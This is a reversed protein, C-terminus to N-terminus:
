VYLSFFFLVTYALENVALLHQLLPFDGASHCGGGSSEGRVLARLAAILDGCPCLLLPRFSFHVHQQGLGGAAIVRGGLCGAVFDARKERMRSM